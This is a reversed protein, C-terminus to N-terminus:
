GNVGGTTADNLQKLLDTARNRLVEHERRLAETQTLQSVLGEHDALMTIEIVPKYMVIYSKGGSSFVKTTAEDLMVATGAQPLLAKLDADLQPDLKQQTM